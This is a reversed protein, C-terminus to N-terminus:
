ATPRNTSTICFVGCSADWFRVTANIPKTTNKMSIRRIRNTKSVINIYCDIKAFIKAGTHQRANWCKM